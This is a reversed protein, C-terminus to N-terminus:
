HEGQETRKPDPEASSRSRSRRRRRNDSEWDQEIVAQSGNRPQGGRGRSGTGRSGTGRSGTGMGRGLGGRGRQGIPITNSNRTRARGTEWSQSSSHDQQVKRLQRQGRPGVVKWLYNGAEEVTLEDNKKTCEDRLDQELKRQRATLDTVISIYDFQSDKLKRAAKLIKEKSQIDHFGVIMPRPKNVPDDKDLNLNGTRATFRAADKLNLDVELVALVEKLKDDDQAKRDAGRLVTNDPEELNYIMLNNEKSKQEALEKFVLDNAKQIIRDNDTTKNQKLEKVEDEVRNVRSNCNSTAEEQKDARTELKAVKTKLLAMEKNFKDLAKACQNCSWHHPIKHVRAMTDLHDYLQQSMSDDCAKHIWQDCISCRVSKDGSTSKACTGCPFTVPAMNTCLSYKNWFPLRTRAYVLQKGFSALKYKVEVRCYRFCLSGM